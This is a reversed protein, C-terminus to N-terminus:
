GFNPPHHFMKQTMKQEHFMRIITRKSRFSVIERHEFCISGIMRKQVRKYDIM